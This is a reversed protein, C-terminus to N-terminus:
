NQQTANNIETQTKPALPNRRWGPVDNALTSTALWPLQTPGNFLEAILRKLAASQEANRRMASTALVLATSITELKPANAPLGPLDKQDLTHAEYVADLGQPVPLPLIHFKNLAGANKLADTGLLLAGDADGRQLAALGESHSKPVRVFPVGLTGFVLEGTAFAASQAPGTCLRKNALMTLSPISSHTVLVIPLSQLRAVYSFRDHAPALLGQADAYALTDAAIIAADAGQLQALDALSQLSGRGLTPVLRLGNRHDLEDALSSALSLWEPEGAVITLATTRAEAEAVALGQIPGNALALSMIAQMVSRRQVM